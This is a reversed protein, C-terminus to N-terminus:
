IAAGTCLYPMQYRKSEPTHLTLLKDLFLDIRERDEVLRLMLREKPLPVFPEAVDGVWLVTPDGQPNGPPLSYFHINVDFTIFCVQTREPCQIYDLSMKVSQVVQQFLGLPHSFQSVDIVFVFTPDLPPRASYTAPARFEYAGYQLESRELRDRRQGFENLASQYNIPVQNTFSCLNCEVTMGGDKFAFYPNVYAKCRQCRM